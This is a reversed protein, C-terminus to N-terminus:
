FDKKSKVSKSLLVWNEGSHLIKSEHFADVFAIFRNAVFSFDAPSAHAHTLSQMHRHCSKIWKNKMKDEVVFQCVHSLSQVIRRLLKMNAVCTPVHKCEVSNNLSKGNADGMAVEAM